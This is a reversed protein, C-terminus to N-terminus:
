VSKLSCKPFHACNDSGIGFSVAIPFGLVGTLALLPHGLPGAQVLGPSCDSTDGGRHVVWKWRHSCWATLGHSVKGACRTVKSSVELLEALDIEM